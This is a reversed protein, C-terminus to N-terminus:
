TSKRYLNIVPVVLKYNIGASLRHKGSVLLNNERDLIIPVLIQGSLGIAQIVETDGPLGDTEVKSNLWFYKDEETFLAGEEFYFNDPVEKLERIYGLVVEKVEPALDQILRM